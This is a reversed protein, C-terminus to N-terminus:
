HEKNVINVTAEINGDKLNLIVSDNIKIDNVSKVLKGNNFKRLIAYGRSLVNNPNYANILATYSNLELKNSEVIQIIESSLLQRQQKLNAKELGFLGGAREALLNRLNNIASQESARDPVLLEAANSPTSARMDAALEALSEDIEHGIAVLCPLRSGAIARVVREDNFAALDDASGGGRTIIIAESNSGDSNAQLIAASLQAPANEGQVLVDYINIKVFPWRAQLIKTFDAFAASEISTILAIEAPPYAISRKKSEDFLGEKTLQAKLMEFAKKISGEGVPAISQVTLSFGFLPHLKPQGSVRIMMGEELPGPLTYISAFCAVKSYEDKIDFYVWKNKSIRFNSLEGEVFSYGLAVELANNAIAVFDTPTLVVEM